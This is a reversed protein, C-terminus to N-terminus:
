AAVYVIGIREHCARCTRFEHCGVAGRKPCRYLELKRTAAVTMMRKGCYPCKIEKQRGAPVIRGRGRRYAAAPWFEPASGHVAIIYLIGGYSTTEM